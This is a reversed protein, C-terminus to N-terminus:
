LLLLEVQYEIPVISYALSRTGEWARWDESVLREHHVELVVLFTCWTQHEVILHVWSKRTGRASLQLSLQMRASRILHNLKVTHISVPYLGQALSDSYDQRILKRELVLGIHAISNWDSHISPYVEVVILVPTLLELIILIV